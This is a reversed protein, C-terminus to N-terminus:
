NKYTLGAYHLFESPNVAEGKVGEPYYSVHIAEKGTTGLVDGMKVTKGVYLPSDHLYIFVVSDGIEENTIIAYCMDDFTEIDEVTGDFPATITTPTDFFMDFGKHYESYEKTIYASESTIPGVPHSEEAHGVCINLAACLVMSGIWVLKKM